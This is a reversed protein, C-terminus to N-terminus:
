IHELVGFDEVHVVVQSIEEIRVHVAEVLDARMGVVVVVLVAERLGFHAFESNHKVM